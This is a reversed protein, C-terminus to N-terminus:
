SVDVTEARAEAYERSSSSIGRSVLCEWILLAAQM